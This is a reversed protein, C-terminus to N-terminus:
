KVEILEYERTGLKMEEGYSLQHPGERSEIRECLDHKQAEPLSKVLDVSAQDIAVIDSSALIGIDPTVVEHAMVGTCDCDISMNRLVNIYTIHSGFHQTVAAAAEVMNEMFRSKTYGWQSDQMSHQMTKGIKGDACGIAINKISGGFGGMMHGKFHTLVVLSDYNQLHSGVSMEKFHKGGRIPFMVAGDEDLIDVPCFTWGNVQITERHKETTDRDGYYLTNTEVLASNPITQQLAKVMAVPLINPGNKEGTHIKIAVHGTIDQNVLRYLKVLAQPTIERTFYVKAPTAYSTAVFAFVFALVLCFKGLGKVWKKMAFAGKRFNDIKNSRSFLCISTHM